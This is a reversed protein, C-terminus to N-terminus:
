EYRLAVMPDISAARRAPLFSAALSVLVIGLVAVCLTLPDRPALGYLLSALVRTSVLALPLGIGVGIACIVCSERLIMWLVESRQAGVAMRVGLESTRRSVSYALTGYLGTAVLLMALGGFIISLRAVLREQSIGADFQAKQTMPQLLALDPAFAAVAKRVQPLFRAPDGATRLEVHMAGIDRMQAFPFYAMPVETERVGTYKSNAVVGIVSWAATSTISVQRGLPGRGNLYRKAFTENVIAVKPASAGDADTFDRGLLIPIGLTGFYDPGVSNWRMMSSDTRAAIRADKGDVFANTNNSWGSGIRNEMLTASEVGPLKRLFDLLRQYFRISEADSHAKLQPNVGFVLLGSARFGLNERELNRLTRVLLGAAVTLILCLAVQLAVISKGTRSGSREQFSTASSNKLALGIPVRLATRLPALGFLLGAALCICITFMLVRSDPTLSIEIGAWAALARTAVLAFLWGLLAGATTLVFSEALLQRFLRTQSGGIALRLSFERRRAANRAALLMAVNGCAIVLILGVMALLVYLPKEFDQYQGIGRAPVFALKRPTEGKQSKGGLPEYAARQFVPALMSQARQETVGPALRALLMLCWWNPAAYYNKGESGWANFEPRKQLPIWVDTPGPEVGSFNRDAVGVITFPASKIYLTQGIAACSRAFRRSWFGYGLVAVGAHDKEDPMSLVRGCAPRVGLGSFFNGSVMDVSAEEPDQGSRVAIKNFGAPVYAFLELAQRQARLQEFVNESFSRRTDGTNGAGDPQGPLVHLYFLQDPDHVPLSRLVVANTVSFIATNAGIGLALTLVIVIAFVPNKWLIRRTYRVDKILDDLWNWSWMEGSVERLLTQNGFQLNAARGAEDHSLGEARLKAARLERHLRMESDLDDLEHRRHLLFSLRSALERLM